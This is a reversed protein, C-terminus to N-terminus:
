GDERVRRSLEPWQIAAWAYGQALPWLLDWPVNGAIWRAEARVARLLAAGRHNKLVFRWRNRTYMTLFRRSLKETTQSEHHIVTSAPFVRVAWGRRRARVCWDVEEFYIPWFGDDLLGISAITERRIALAAGTVYDMDAPEHLTQDKVSVGYDVHKTLGNAEIRCGLHQIRERGPYLLRTGAIGLHPDSDFGAALPALWDADPETDDNLLIVVDGSANMIGLNNGGAFGLNRPARVLMAEPYTERVFRSTGDNSGNDVVIVEHPAPDCRRLADLPMALRQRGNLSVIVISFRVTM